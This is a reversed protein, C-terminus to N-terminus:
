RLFGTLKPELAHLDSVGEIGEGRELIDDNLKLKLEYGKLSKINRAKYKKLAEIGVDRKWIVVGKGIKQKPASAGAKDRDAQAKQSAKIEVERKQIVGPYKKLAAMTDSHLKTNCAGIAVVVKKKVESLAKLAKDWDMQDNAVESNCKSYGTLYLANGIDGQCVPMPTFVAGLGKWDRVQRDNTEQTQREAFDSKTQQTWEKQTRNDFWKVRDTREVFDIRSSRDSLHICLCVPNEIEIGGVQHGSQIFRLIM